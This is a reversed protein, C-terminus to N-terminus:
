SISLDLSRPETYGGGQLIADERINCRTARILVSTESSRLAEMMLIVFIPSTPVVYGYSRLTCRNRTVALTGAEDLRTVRIISARREEFRRKKCSGCPMVDWFVGNKMTVATFVDFRVGNGNNSHERITMSVHNNVSGNSLLHQERTGYKATM